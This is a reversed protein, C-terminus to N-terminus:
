AGKSNISLVAKRLIDLVETRRDESVNGQKIDIGIGFSIDASEKKLPFAARFGNKGSDWERSFGNKKVTDLYSSLNKETKWVHVGYEPFPYNRMIAEKSGSLALFLLGSVSTYPCFSFNEPKQIIEPQEPSIRLKVMIDYGSMETVVITADGLKVSLGVIAASLRDLFRKNGSREVVELLREGVTYINNDNKGLFGRASLTRILNHVTTNKLGIRASIENLRLGNGAGAVIEIIDLAREVSQVLEGRPM